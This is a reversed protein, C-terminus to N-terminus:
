KQNETLNLFNRYLKIQIPNNEQLEYTFHYQLEELRKELMKREKKTPNNEELMQHLVLMQIMTNYMDETLNFHLNIAKKIEQDTKM